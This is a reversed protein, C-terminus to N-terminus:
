FLWFCLEEFVEFRRRLFIYIKRRLLMYVLVVLIYSNLSKLGGGCFCTYVSFMVTTELWGHEFNQRGSMNVSYYAQM